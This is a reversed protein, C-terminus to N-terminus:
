DNTLPDGTGYDVPTGNHWHIRLDKDIHSYVGGIAASRYPDENVSSGIDENKWIQNVVDESGEGIVMKGCLCEFGAEIYGMKFRNGDEDKRRGDNMLFQVRIFGEWKNYYGIVEVVETEQDSTFEKWETKTFYEYKDFADGISLTEDLDRLVSRKVIDINGVDECGTVFVLGFMVCSALCLRRLLNTKSSVPMKLRAGNETQNKTAMVNNLNGREQRAVVTSYYPLNEPSLIERTQEM